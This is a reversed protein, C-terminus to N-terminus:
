VPIILTLNYHKKNEEINLSYKKGYIIDLRKRTNEIGIGSTTKDNMMEPKGNRIEFILREPEFSFTIEIFSSNQYSVGHKFANEVFSTFLYPPILKNPLKEPVQLSIKVKDSYRLKMLNIYSSIFELEKALPVLEEDSDYLLHRM